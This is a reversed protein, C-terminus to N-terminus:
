FQLRRLINRSTSLKVNMIENLSKAGFIMSESGIVAIKEANYKRKCEDIARIVDYGTVVIEIVPIDQLKEKLALYTVGRAIIIDSSFERTLAEQTGVMYTTKFNIGEEKVATLSSSVENTIEDYPIVFTIDVM